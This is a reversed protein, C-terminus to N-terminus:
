RNAIKEAAKLLLEYIQRACLEYEPIGGGFPDAVDGQEGVFECLTFVKKEAIRSLMEKHGETMVLILDSENIMKESIQKATHNSMDIGYNKMVLIAPKSASAGIAACIGASEIRVDLDQETAIKDFLYAAMPSRCTNGTCVFLVNMAKEGLKDRCM